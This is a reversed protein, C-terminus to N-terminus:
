RGRILERPVDPDLIFLGGATSVCTVPVNHSTQILNAGPEDHLCKPAKVPFHLFSVQDSRVVKGCPETDQFSMVSQQVTQQFYQFLATNEVV